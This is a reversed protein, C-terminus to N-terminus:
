NFLGPFEEHTWVGIADMLGPSAQLILRILKGEQDSRIIEQVLFLLTLVADLGANPPIERGMQLLIECIVGRTLEQRSEM